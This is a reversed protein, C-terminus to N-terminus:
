RMSARVADCIRDANAEIPQTGDLRIAAIRQSLLEYGKRRIAVYEINPVDNKRKMSIEEPVDVWFVFRPSPAINVLMPIFFSLYKDKMGFDAWLDVITDYIYRDSIILHGASLPRAVKRSLDMMYSIVIFSLYLWKLPSNTLLRSKNESRAEYSERFDGQFGAVKSNARLLFGLLKSEFRCWVYMVNPSETSLKEVVTKSISSKGSGDPGMIAILRAAESPVKM